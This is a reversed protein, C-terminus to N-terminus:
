DLDAFFKAKYVKECDGSKNKLKRRKKKERPNQNDQDDSSDAHKDLREEDDDVVDQVDQAPLEETFEENINWIKVVPEHGCSAAFTGTSDLVVKEAPLGEEHAGVVSLFNNPLISIKRIIGDSSATLLTEDDVKCLSDVSNPHGPMRDTSDLFQGWTFISLVGSQSGVVVKKGGKCIQVSLLEDDQNESLGIPKRAKRVDYVSLTGDGSTAVIAHKDEHYDFDSIFDVNDRWELTSKQQRIDWLKIVGADDGSVLLHHKITSLCNIGSSHANKL